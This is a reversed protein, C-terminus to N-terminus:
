RSEAAFDSIYDKVPKIGLNAWCSSQDILLRAQTTHINLLPGHLIM